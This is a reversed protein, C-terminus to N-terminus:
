LEDSEIPKVLTSTDVGYNLEKGPTSQQYIDQLLARGVVEYSVMLDFVEASSSARRSEFKPKATHKNFAGKAFLIKARLAEFSYGPGISILSKDAREPM